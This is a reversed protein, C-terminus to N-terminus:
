DGGNSDVEYALSVVAAEDSRVTVQTRLFGLREHWAELTFSGPPVDTVRFRGSTDSIAHYSHADVRVFAQMWGHVDCKIQYIGPADFRRPVPQSGAILAVNGQGPGYWHVTHLTADSNRLELTDEPRLVAVHPEFRCDRNDLVIRRASHRELGLEPPVDVLAVIVHALGGQPSVVLDDLSKVTGCVEPDTTNEIRRSEPRVSGGGLVVVGEVAGGAQAPLASPAGLHFALVLLAFLTGSDLLSGAEDRM